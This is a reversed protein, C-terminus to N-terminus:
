QATVDDVTAEFHTKSEDISIVCVKRGGGNRSETILEPLSKTTAGPQATWGDNKASYPLLDNLLEARYLAIFKHVQGQELRKILLIVDMGVCTAISHLMNDSMWAASAPQNPEFHPQGYKAQAAIPWFNRSNYNNGVTILLGGWKCGLDTSAAASVLCRM